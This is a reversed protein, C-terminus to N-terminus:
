VVPGGSGKDRSSGVRFRFPGQIIGFLPGLTQGVVVNRCDTLLLM